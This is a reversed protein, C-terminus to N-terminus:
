LIGLFDIVGRKTKNVKYGAENLEVQKISKRGFLNQMQSWEKIDIKYVSGDAFGVLVFAMAGLSDYKLLTERQFDSLVQYTIKDSETFKADFVVTRGGKLVGKFDPQAAKTFVAEFVGNELHRLIKMPEPTKEIKALMNMEYIKCIEEVQMEFNQGIGHSRQGQLQRKPNKVEKSVIKKYEEISMGM